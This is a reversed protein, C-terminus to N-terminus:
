KQCVIKHCFPVRVETLDYPIVFYLLCVWLFAGLFLSVWLELRILLVKTNKDWVFKGAENLLCFRSM